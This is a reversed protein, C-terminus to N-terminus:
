RRQEGSRGCLNPEVPTHGQKSWAMATQSCIDYKMISDFLTSKGTHLVGYVFSHKKLSM